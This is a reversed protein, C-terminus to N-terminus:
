LIKVLKKKSNLAPSIEIQSQTVRYKKALLKILERDAKKHIPSSKLQISLINDKLFVIKQEKSNPKVVIQIKM